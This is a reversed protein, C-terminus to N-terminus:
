NDSILLISVYFLHKNLKIDQFYEFLKIAGNKANAEGVLNKLVDSSLFFIFIFCNLLTSLFLYYVGPISQLVKQKALLRTRLREEESRVPPQRALKGDPWYSERFTNLYFILMSQSLLWNVM